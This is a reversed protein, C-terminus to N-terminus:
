QTLRWRITFLTITHSRTPWPTEFMTNPKQCLTFKVIQVICNISKPVSTFECFKSIFGVDTIFHISVSTAM